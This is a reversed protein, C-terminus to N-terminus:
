HELAGDYGGSPHITTGLGPWRDGKDGRGTLDDPEAYMEDPASGCRDRGEPGREISLTATPGGKGHDRRRLSTGLVGYLRLEYFERSGPLRTFLAESSRRLGEV